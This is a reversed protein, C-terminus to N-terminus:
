YTPFYYALRRWRATSTLLPVIIKEDRLLWAAPPALDRCFCVYWFSRETAIDGDQRGGWIQPIPPPSLYTLSCLFFTDLTRSSSTRWFHNNGGRQEIGRPSARSEVAAAAAAKAKSILPNLSLSFPFFVASAVAALKRRSKEGGGGGGERVGRRKGIRM